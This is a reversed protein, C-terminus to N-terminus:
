ASHGEKLRKAAQVFPHTKVSVPKKDRRDEAEEVLKNIDFLKVMSLSAPKYHRIVAKANRTWYRRSAAIYLGKATAIPRAFYDRKQKNTNDGQSM